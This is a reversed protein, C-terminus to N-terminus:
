RPAILLFVGAGELGHSHCRLLAAELKVEGVAASASGGVVEGAVRRPYQRASEEGEESPEELWLELGIRLPRGDATYTTSLRPDSVSRAQGREFVTATLLDAGHGHAKRPRASVLAVGDDASFWASVDQLSRFQRPDLPERRAGVRGNCDIERGALLGQVHCLRDCGALAGDAETPAPGTASVSLEGGEASIRWPASAGAPEIEARTVVPQGGDLALALFPDEAGWAIGWTGSDPNAFAVTLPGAGPAGATM